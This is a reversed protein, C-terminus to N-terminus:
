VLTPSLRHQPPYFGGGGGDLIKGKPQFSFHGLFLEPYPPLFILLTFTFSYPNFSSTFSSM